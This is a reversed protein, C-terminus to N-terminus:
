LEGDPIIIVTMHNNVMHGLYFGAGKIKRRKERERKKMHMGADLFTSILFAVEIFM